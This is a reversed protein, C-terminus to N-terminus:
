RGMSSSDRGFQKVSVSPAERDAIIKMALDMGLGAAQRGIGPAAPGKSVVRGKTNQISAALALLTGERQAPAQVKAPISMRGAPATGLKRPSPSAAVSIEPVAPAPATQSPGKGSSPFSAGAERQAQHTAAATVVPAAIPAVAAVAAGAALNGNARAPSVVGAGDVGAAPLPAAKQEPKGETAPGAGPQVDDSVSTGAERERGAQPAFKPSNADTVLVHDNAAAPPEIDGITVPGVTQVAALEPNAEGATAAPAPEIGNQGSGGGDPGRDPSNTEPAAGDGGPGQDPGNTGPTAPPTAGSDGPGGQTADRLDKASNNSLLADRDKNRAVELLFEENEKWLRIERNRIAQRAGIMIGGAIGHGLAQLVEMGTKPENPASQIQRLNKLVGSEKQPMHKRREWLARASAREHFNPSASTEVQQETAGQTRVAEATSARLEANRSNGEANDYSAGLSMLAERAGRSVPVNEVHELDFRQPAPLHIELPDGTSPDYGQQMRDPIGDGNRDINERYGAHNFPEVLDSDDSM